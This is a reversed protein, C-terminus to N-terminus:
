PPRVIDLHARRFTVASVPHPVRASAAVELSPIFRSHEEGLCRMNNSLPIGGPRRSQSCEIMYVFSQRANRGKAVHTVARVRTRAILM